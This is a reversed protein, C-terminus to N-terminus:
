RYRTEVLPRSLNGAPDRAVARLVRRPRRGPVPFAGARTRSIMRRRGDVTLVVEAPESVWLRVPRLRRLRLRPATSDSAFVVRKVFGGVSLEAEYRGDLLRGIRKRGDWAVLQPGGALIGDFVTTVYRGEKLVRLKSQAAATLGFRFEITDLRGDGNPSFVASSATLDSALLNIALPISAVGVRGEASSASLSITYAGSPLDRPDFVFTNVGARRPETFLTKVFAGTADTLTGTVTAAADLTFSVTATDDKGDGNPTLASPTAVAASVLTPTSSKRGLPGRAPRVGPAEISYSYTGPPATSSDWTWAVTAGTGSGGAIPTGVTDLISVTWPLASSLRGAFSIKGGLRGTAQPAYLKPLGTQAVGQVIPGFRAYVASGPCDTFGVDRHGVIARIFVPVGNPFRPNGGSIWNFASLPDVHAVDLRWALLRVLADQAAASPAAGQYSGLLAIGTSGTNFGEAHAGIVNRDAGGARGEFIQGYKDVLFNYGVDNWGNAKVHYVQIARVIAASQARTYGNGGATHHVVAFAVRDAYRPPARKILENAGWAARPIIPPSGAVSLKRVPLAEDPSWVFHARLRRVPGRLRYEIEDSAGVWFPNGLKWGTLSLSREGQLQDPRDEDEPAAFRWRTWRGSLSRTRFFVKGSGKWHLGVLTFRPPAGSLSSLAREGLPVDQSALTVVEARALGPFTLLLFTAILPAKM